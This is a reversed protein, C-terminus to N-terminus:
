VTTHVIALAITLIAENQFKARGCKLQTIKPLNSGQRHKLKRKQLVCIIITKNQETKKM